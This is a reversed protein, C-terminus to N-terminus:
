QKKGLLDYGNDFIGKPSWSSYCDEDPKDAEIYLVRYGDTDEIDAEYDRVLGLKGATHYTMPEAKVIKKSKYAKM